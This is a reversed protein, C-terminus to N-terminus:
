NFFMISVKLGEFPSHKSGEFPSLKLGEFPSHKLDIRVSIASHVQRSWILIKKRKKEGKGM